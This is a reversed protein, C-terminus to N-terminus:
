SLKNKELMGDDAPLAKAVHRGVFGSAGIVLIKKM